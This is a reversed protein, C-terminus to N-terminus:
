VCRSTYLLCGRNVDYRGHCINDRIINQTSESWYKEKFLKKFQTYDILDNRTATWWNDTIGRFYEDLMERISNWITLRHKNFHEDIRARFEM